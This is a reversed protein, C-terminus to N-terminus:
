NYLTLFWYRTKNWKLNQMGAYYREIAGRHDWLVNYWIQRIKTGWVEFPCGVFSKFLLATFSPISRLIHFCSPEMNLALRSQLLCFLVKGWFVSPILYSSHSIIHSLPLIWKQQVSKFEPIPFPILSYSLSHCSAACTSFAVSTWGHNKERWLM